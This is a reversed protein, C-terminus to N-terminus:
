EEVAEVKSDRWVLIRKNKSATGDKKFGHVIPIIKHFDNIEYSVVIGYKVEGDEFTVKVKTGLPFPKNDEIYQKKLNKIEEKARDISDELATIKEELEIKNM